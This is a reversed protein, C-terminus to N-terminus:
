PRQLAMVVMTATAEEGSGSTGAAQTTSIIVVSTMMQRSGILATSLPTTLMWMARTAPIVHKAYGNRPTSLGPKKRVNIALAVATM